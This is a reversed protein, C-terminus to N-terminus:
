QIEELIGLGHLKNMFYNTRSDQKLHLIVRGQFNM